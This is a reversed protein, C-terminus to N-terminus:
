FPLEDVVFPAEYALCGELEIRTLYVGPQLSQRWICNKAPDLEKTASHLLLEGDGNRVELKTAVTRGDQRPHLTFEIGNPGGDVTNVYAWRNEFLGPEAFVRIRDRWQGASDGLLHLLTSREAPSRCLVAQLHGNLQLPSSILVEACRRRKIEDGQVSHSDYVGDHYIQDFPLERFADNTSRTVTNHSQMNGDSFQVSPQTLIDEAQFIMIVLMPAHREQYVEDPKKVGEVRYQTPSKPRFYLRVLQHAVVRAAIIEAPAIDRVIREAAQERSLLVDSRLIKVANEIPEHRFLRAPWHQRYPRNGKRALRQEWYEIHARVVDASLAM